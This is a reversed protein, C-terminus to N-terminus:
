EKPMAIGLKAFVKETVDAEEPGYLITSVGSSTTQNLVYKYGEAVAVEDIANQLKVLIPELLEQQKTVLQQDLEAALQQVEADLKLLEEELAKLEADGAGAEKKQLYEQYKTKVYNDKIQLKEALKGQYTQLTKNMTKFEPMSALVYEVNTYGIINQAQLTFVGALAFFCIAIYTKFNM